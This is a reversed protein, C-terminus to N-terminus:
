NNEKEELNIIRQELEELKEWILELQKMVEPSIGAQPGFTSMTQLM